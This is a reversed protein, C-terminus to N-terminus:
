TFGPDTMGTLLDLVKGGDGADVFQRPTANNLQRNPADYWRDVGVSTFLGGAVSKVASETVFRRNELHERPESM